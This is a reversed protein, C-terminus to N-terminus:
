QRGMKYGPKAFVFITNKDQFTTKEVLNFGHQLFQKAVEDEKLHNKWALATREKINSIIELPCYSLICASYNGSISYIFSPYDIVYELCGSVFAIDCIIDPFEGKNFDCIITGSGREKYDVPNYTNGTTLFDKLWMEGCGLDAVSAGAPIYSAMLEIRRKWLTDFYEIDQWKVGKYWSKINDKLSKIM